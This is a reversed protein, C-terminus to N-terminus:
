GCSNITLRDPFTDRYVSKERQRIKQKPKPCIRKQSFITWLGILYDAETGGWGQGNNDPENFVEFDDVQYDNRVNLWYITAFVHEWWENNDATTRLPNAMWSASHNVGTNRLALMLKVGDAKTQGFFSRRPGMNKDWIDWPVANVNAKIDAPSLAGYSTDNVPEFVTIDNWIRWTNFGMDKLTANDYGMDGNAGIYSSSIGNSTGSVTITAATAADVPAFQTNAVIILLMSLFAM